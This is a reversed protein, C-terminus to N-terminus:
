FAAEAVIDGDRMGGLQHFITYDLTENLTQVSGDAMAFQIVGGAHSSHFKNINDPLTNTWGQDAFNVGNINGPGNDSQDSNAHPPLGFFTMCGATWMWSNIAKAEIAGNREVNGGPNEGFMLTNTTGDSISSFSAQPRRSFIGVRRNFFESSSAGLFGAVGVYHTQGLTDFAFFDGSRGARISPVPVTGMGYAQQFMIVQTADKIEESSPCLFSPVRTRAATLTDIQGPVAPRTYYLFWAAEGGSAGSNIVRNTPNWAGLDINLIDNDFRESVVSLDMYPMLHALPGVLQGSRFWAQGGVQQGKYTSPGLPDGNGLACMWGPPLKDYTSHFNHAALGLQKLNNQCQSRRAAERAQQVAPLLLSVLIAIIAIVVLLEILTFGLRRAAPAPRPAPSVQM